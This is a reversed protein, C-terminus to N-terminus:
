GKRPDNIKQKWFRRNAEARSDGLRFNYFEVFATSYFVVSKKKEELVDAFVYSM